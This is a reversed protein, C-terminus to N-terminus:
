AATGKLPAGEQADIWAQDIFGGDLGVKYTDFRTKQDPRTLQEQDFEVTWGRPTVDPMSLRDAIAALYPALTLDILEWNRMSRNDYTMTAGEVATSAAWAPLAMHRVLELSLAKRGDILLNELRAGHVKTTISKPTYAAGRERRKTTWQEILNDIDTQALPENNEDHLEIAPVPNDEAMAAALEVALARRISRKGRALLGEGSPSDFRIVDEPRVARDRIGILRGYADLRAEHQAVREVRYPWGYSDRETIHWWSCPYFILDDVLWTISTSRALGAEPQLLLQSTQPWRTAGRKTYLPIRGITGAIIQRGAAVTGLSLANLRTVPVVNGLDYLEALTVQALIDDARWPSALSLTRAQERVTPTYGLRNAIRDLLPV